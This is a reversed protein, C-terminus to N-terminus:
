RGKNGRYNDWLIIVKDSLADVRKALPGIAESQTERAERFGDAMEERLESIQHAHESCRSTIISLDVHPNAPNGDGDRRMGNRYMRKAKAQRLAWRVVVFSNALVGITILGMWAVLGLEKALGLAKVLEGM